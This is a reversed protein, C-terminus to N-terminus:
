IHLQGFITLTLQGTSFIVQYPQKHDFGTTLYGVTGLGISRVQNFGKIFTRNLLKTM